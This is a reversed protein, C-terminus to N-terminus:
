GRIGTPLPIHGIIRGEDTPDPKIPDWVHVNGSCLDIMYMPKTYGEATDKDTESFQSSIYGRACPHTHYAGEITAGLPLQGNFFLRVADIKFDTRPHTIFLAGKYRYIIGGYEVLTALQVSQALGDMAMETQEYTEAVSITPLMLFLGALLNILKM